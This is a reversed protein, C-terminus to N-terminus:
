SRWPESQEEVIWLGNKNTLLYYAGKIGLPNPVNIFIVVAQTGDNAFGVRSFLYYGDLSKDMKEFEAGSVLPYDFDARVDNEISTSISNVNVFNDFTDERLGNLIKKLGGTDIEGFRNVSSSDVVVMRKTKESLLVKFVDLEQKSLRANENERCGFVSVALLFILALSIAKM